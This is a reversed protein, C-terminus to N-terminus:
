LLEVDRGAKGPVVEELRGFLAVSRCNRTHSYATTDVQQYKYYDAVKSPVSEGPRLVGFAADWGVEDFDHLIPDKGVGIQKMTVLVVTLFRNYGAGVQHSHWRAAAEETCDEKRSAQISVAASLGSCFALHCGSSFYPDIFCGADGVLRAYPSAYSDACYSYDSATEISSVLQAEALRKAIAPAQEQITRHYFEPTSAEWSKKKEAYVSQRSVVGM